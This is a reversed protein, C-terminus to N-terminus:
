YQYLEYEKNKTNCGSSGREELSILFLLLIMKSDSFPRWPPRINLVIVKISGGFPSIILYKKLSVVGGLFENTRFDREM